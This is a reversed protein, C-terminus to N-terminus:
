NRKKTFDTDFRYVLSINWDFDDADIDSHIAKNMLSSLYVPFKRHKLSLSHSAFIGNDDDIRLFYVQPDWELFLHKNLRIDDIGVRFSLFLSSPQEIKELGWGYLCYSGISVKNSIDYSASLETAMFRQSVLQERTVGNTQVTQSRFIFVPFHMGAKLNFRPKDIIKYRWIFIFSWPKLGELDFRFQPEFSFRDGGVSLDAIVAPNGLSFLPILSFGNNTVSIDGDFHFTKEDQSFSAHNIVLQFGLVLAILRARYSNLIM